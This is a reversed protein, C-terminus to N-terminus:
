GHWRRVAMFCGYFRGHRLGTQGQRRKACIFEIDGECAKMAAEWKERREHNEPPETQQLYYEQRYLFLVGDADQEISGSDRLDALRPRKEDREEVKRSLQALAAIPLGNAKAACKLGRSVQTIENTRNDNARDADMLQLYDVIVLDLSQGRAAFRRAHRRILTQLRGIRLGPMDVIVLPLDRIEDRARALTRFQEPSIDGREINGFNIGAHGNFCLDAALRMGLQEASMELSVFLVGHGKLAAGRAYNLATATKAMGPRGAIIQLDGPRLPGMAEDLPGIGSTVGPPLGEEVQRLHEGVADAASMEKVGQRDDGSLGALATEADAVLEDTSCELENVAALVERLGDMLRRRRALDAIHRAFDKAGIVGIRAGVGGTLGALIKRGEEDFFGKLTVPNASHGKARENVILGFLHGFWPDSFDEASLMDAIADIIANESLLAACLAAETDVSGIPPPAIAAMATM